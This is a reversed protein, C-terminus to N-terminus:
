RNRGRAPRVHLCGHFGRGCGQARLADGGQHPPQDNLVDDDVVRRRGVEHARPDVRPLVPRAHDGVRDLDARPHEVALLRAGADLDELVVELVGRLLDHGRQVLLQVGDEPGLAAMHRAHQRPVEAGLRAGGDLVLHAGRHGLEEGLRALLHELLEGGAVLRVRQRRELAGRDGRDLLRGLQLVLRQLLHAAAHPRELELDLLQLGLLLLRELDGGLVVARGGLAARVLFRHEVRDVRDRAGLAVVAVRDAVEAAGAAALPVHHHIEVAAGAARAAPDHELGLVAALRALLRERLEVLRHGLARGVVAHPHDRGLVLQRRARVRQALDAAVLQEDDVVGLLAGPESELHGVREGAGADQHRLSTSRAVTAISSTRRM